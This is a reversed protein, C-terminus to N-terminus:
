GLWLEKDLVASAGADHSTALLVFAMTGRMQWMFRDVESKTTELGGIGGFHLSPLVSIFVLPALGWTGLLTGATQALALGPIRTSEIDRGQMTVATFSLM